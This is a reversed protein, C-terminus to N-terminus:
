IPNRNANRVWEPKREHTSIRTKLSDTEGVDLWNQNTYIVYVGAVENFSADISYPGDFNYNQIKVM